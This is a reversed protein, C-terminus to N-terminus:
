RHFGTTRALCILSTQVSTAGSASSLNWEADREGMLTTGTLLLDGAPSVGTAVSYENRRAPAAPPSAARSGSPSRPSGPPSPTTSAPRPASSKRSAASPSPAPPASPPPTRSPSSGAANRPSPASSPSATTTPAASSAGAPPCRAPLAGPPSRRPSAPRSSSSPSSSPASSSASAISATPSASAFAGCRGRQRLPHLPLDLSPRRHGPHLQRCQPSRRQPRRRSGPVQPHGVQDPRARGRRTQQGLCARRCPGPRHKRVGGHRASRAGRRARITRTLGRRNVLESGLGSDHKERVPRACNAPIQPQAPRGSPAPPRRLM